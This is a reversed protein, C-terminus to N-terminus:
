PRKERGQALLEELEIQVRRLARDAYGSALRWAESDDAALLQEIRVALNRAERLAPPAEATAEATAEPPM